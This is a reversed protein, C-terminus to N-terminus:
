NNPSIIQWITKVKEGTEYICNKGKLKPRPKKEEAEEEEEEETFMIKTM